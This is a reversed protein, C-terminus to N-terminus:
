QESPIPQVAEAAKRARQAQANKFHDTGKIPPNPKPAHQMLLQAKREPWDARQTAQWVEVDDFLMAEGKAEDGRLSFAVRTKDQDIKPDSGLVYHREDISALVTDGHFEVTLAYWKGQQFEFAAADLQRMADAPDTTSGDKQVIFGRPEIIVRCIHGKPGDFAVGTKQAGAFRFRFRLAGTRGMAIGRKCSGTYKQTAIELGKLAGDVASWQGKPQAWRPDLTPASFDDAMLLEGPQTMLGPPQPIGAPVAANASRLITVGILLLFGRLLLFRM